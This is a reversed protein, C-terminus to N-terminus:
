VFQFAKKVEEKNAKDGMNETIYDLRENVRAHEKDWLEKSMKNELQEELARHQRKFMLVFSEITKEDFKKEEMRKIQLQCDAMRLREKEM